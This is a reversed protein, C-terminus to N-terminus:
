EITMPVADSITTVVCPAAPDVTAFAAFFTIGALGPDDPIEMTPASSDGWNDLMGTFGQFFPNSASISAALLGDPDLPFIGACTPIGTSTGASVAVFYTQNAASPACLACQLKEGIKSSGLPVMAADVSPDLTVFTTTTLSPLEHLVDIQYTGPSVGVTGWELTFSAGPLIWFYFDDCPISLLEGAADLVQYGCYPAMLVEDTDNFIKIKVTCGVPAVKPGVFIGVQGQVPSAALFLPALSAVLPIRM